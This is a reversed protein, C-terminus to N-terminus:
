VAMRATDRAAAVETCAKALLGPGARRFADRECQIARDHPARENCAMRHLCHPSRISKRVASGPSDFWGSLCPRAIDKALHPISLSLKDARLVTRQVEHHIPAVYQYSHTLSASTGADHGALSVSGCSSLFRTDSILATISSLMGSSWFSLSARESRIPAQFGRYNPRIPSSEFRASVNGHRSM